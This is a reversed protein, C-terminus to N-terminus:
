NRRCSVIANIGDVKSVYFIGDTQSGAIAYGVDHGSESNHVTVAVSGNKTGFIVKLRENELITRDSVGTAAQAVVNMTINSTPGSNREGSDSLDGSCSWSEIASSSMNASVKEAPITQGELGGQGCIVSSSVDSGSINLEIKKSHRSATVSSVIAGSDLSYATLRVISGKNSFDVRYSHNEYLPTATESDFRHTVVPITDGSNSAQDTHDPSELNGRCTFAVAGNSPSSSSSSSAGPKTSAAVASSSMTPGNVKPSCSSILLSGSVGMTAVVRVLVSRDLNFTIM